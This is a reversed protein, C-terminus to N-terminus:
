SSRCTLHGNIFVLHRAAAKAEEPTLGYVQFRRGDPSQGGVMLNQMTPDIQGSVTFDVGAMRAQHYVAAFLRAHTLERQRVFSTDYMLAPIMLSTICCMVLLALIMEKISFGALRTPHRATKM